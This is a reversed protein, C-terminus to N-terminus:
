IIEKRGILKEQDPIEKKIEDISEVIIWDDMNGVREYTFPPISIVKM